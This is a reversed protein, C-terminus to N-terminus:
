TKSKVITEVIRLAVAHLHESEWFIIPTLSIDYKKELDTIITVAIISDISISELSAYTDITSADMRLYMAFLRIIEQEVSDILENM